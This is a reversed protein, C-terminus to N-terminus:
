KLHGYRMFHDDLIKSTLIKKIELFCNIQIYLFMSRIVFFKGMYKKLEKEQQM